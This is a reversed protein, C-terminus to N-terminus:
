TTGSTLAKLDDSDPWDHPVLFSPSGDIWREKTASKFRENDKFYAHELILIQLSHGKEVENFLLDFYQKLALRDQDQSQIELENELDAPFYPRSLQDLVLLGPIPTELDAFLQHLALMVSLHLSLVNEDSGITHLSERRKPTIVGVSLDRPNFDVRGGAYRDDFPLHTLIETATGSLLLRKEELLEHKTQSGLQGELERIRERLTNLHENTQTNTSEETLTDIYLSIRGLVRHRRQDLNIQERVQENEGVAAQIQQKTSELETRVQVMRDRIQEADRTVIPRQREVESLELRVRNYVSQISNVSETAQNLPQACTPCAIAHETTPILDIVALRNRQSTSSESFQQRIGGLREAAVLRRRLTSLESEASFKNDYLTPLLDNEGGAQEPFALANWNGLGKLQSLIEEFTAKVANVDILGVAIAETLLAGARSLELGSIRETEQFRQNQMSLERKLRRLDGELEITAPDTVGLFFPLRNIIAVRKEDLEGSSWLLKGKDIITSDDQLMYPMVHRATIPEKRQAPSFPEVEIEPIGLLREFQRLAVDIDAKRVLTEHGLPIQLQNGIDFYASTDTKRTNSPTKRCLLYETDNKVWLLGVWSCSDRVFSPIHCEGAGMTYNIIEVLASKGTHSKGTIINVAELKLDIDRRRNDHSFILIKKLNWRKM